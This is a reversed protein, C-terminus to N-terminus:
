AVVERDAPIAQRTHVSDIERLIDAVREIADPAFIRIHGAIAEPEISRTKIAYQVRHIPEGLEKAIAGVTLAVERYSRM